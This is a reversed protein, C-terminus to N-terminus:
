SPWIMKCGKESASRSVKGAPVVDAVHFLNPYSGDKRVEGPFTNALMQHDSARYHCEHPQLAVQPPLVLGQMARAVKGSDLAGAKNAALAIANASAFGFWSRATPTQKYKSRYADVFAKVHPVDPQNWWWEFTWWGLRADDPLSALVELEMLGGGIAMDKDLGFQTAQKLANVLDDGGPLMILVDPKAAKAKILYSSFDTTGLPALASGLVKGGFGQLLKTYAAQSSHGYAYDPTIFYWNGGFKDYLTRALSAVLMWSTTCTRFTNWNCKSGTIPDAHGGVVMYLVNLQHTTQSLALAVSSSLGGMLFNVGDRKILKRAKQLGQGVNTAGDEILLQAPRGLIGGNANIREIAMKAGNIENKGLAGYTGTQADVMGIKVADDSKAFAGFSPFMSSAGLVVGAASAKLIERRTFETGKGDGDIM